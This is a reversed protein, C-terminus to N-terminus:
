GGLDIVTAKKLMKPQRLVHAVRLHARSAAATPVNMPRMRHGRQVRGVLVDAAATHAEVAMLVGVKCAVAMRVAAAEQVSSRGCGGARIVESSWDDIRRLAIENARLRVESAM